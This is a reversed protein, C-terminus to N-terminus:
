ATAADSFVSRVAAEVDGRTLLGGAGSGNAPLAAVIAAVYGAQAEGLAAAAGAKASAEIAALEDTDLGAVNTLIKDLKAGNVAQATLLTNVGEWTFAWATALQSGASWTGQSLAETQQMDDEKAAGVNNVQAMFAPWDFRPGPDDHSGVGLGITIDRHGCVGRAGAAVQAPSLKTTPIGALACLRRVLGATVAIADPPVAHADGANMGCMEIHIGHQNAYAFAAWAQFDLRLSGLVGGGDVYFHASTWGSSADTRNAAYSAEQYRTSSPNGTDHIVVLRPPWALASARAQARPAAAYEIGALQSPM